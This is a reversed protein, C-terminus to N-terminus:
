LELLDYDYEIAGPEASIHQLITILNSAATLIDRMVAM